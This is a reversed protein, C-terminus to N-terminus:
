SISGPVDVRREPQRMRGESNNNNNLQGVEAPQQGSVVVRRMDLAVSVQPFAALCNVM